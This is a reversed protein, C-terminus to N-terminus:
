YNRLVYHTLLIASTYSLTNKLLYYPTSNQFEPTQLQPDIYLGFIGSALVVCLGLFQCLYYATNSKKKVTM